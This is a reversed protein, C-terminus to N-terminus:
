LTVGFRDKLAFGAALSAGFFWLLVGMEGGPLLGLDSDPARLTVTEFVSDAALADEGPYLLAELTKTRKVPVKRAGGGVAVAKDLQEGGASLRLVFDGGQELRLRWVAEGTPTRVPPAEAVVGPPLDLTVDRPSVGKSRDLQVELLEVAGVPVPAYGYNAVLQVLIVTMPGILVLMPVINKALYVLNWGMALATSRLVGILDDRYLVVELLHVMVRNKARTIGAQDSVKKYVLLAVVGALLPWLLLDFWAFRHGFPALIVDFVASCIANFTQM